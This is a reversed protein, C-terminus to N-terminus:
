YRSRRRAFLRMISRTPKISHIEVPIKGKMMRNLETRNFAERHSRQSTAFSKIIHFGFKIEWPLNNGRCDVAFNLEGTEYFSTLDQEFILYGARVLTTVNGTLLVSLNKM